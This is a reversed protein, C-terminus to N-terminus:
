KRKGRFLGAAEAAARLADSMTIGNINRLFAEKEEDSLRMSVIHYRPDPKCKGM